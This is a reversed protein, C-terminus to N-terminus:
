KHLRDIFVISKETVQLRCTGYDSVAITRYRLDFATAAQDIEHIAEADGSLHLLASCDGLSLLFDSGGQLPEHETPLVWVDMIPTHFEMELGIHGEFGHRFEIIEGKLGKGVCTYIRDPTPFTNKGRHPVMLEDSDRDQASSTTVIDM